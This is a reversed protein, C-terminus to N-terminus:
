IRLVDYGTAPDISVGNQTALPNFAGASFSFVTSGNETLNILGGHSVGSLGSTGIGATPFFQWGNFQMDSLEIQGGFNTFDVTGTLRPGTNAADLTLTALNTDSPSNLTFATWNPNGGVSITGGALTVAAVQNLGSTLTLNGTITLNSFGTATDAQVSGAIMASPTNTPNIDTPPHPTPAPTTAAPVVVPDPSSVPATPPANVIATHAINEPSQAFFNLVDGRTYGTALATDWYTAGAVDGHRGLVNEYLTEIFQWDDTSGHIALFEPSKAFYNAIQPISWGADATNDWYALGVTDPTRNFTAAYLRTIEANIEASAM